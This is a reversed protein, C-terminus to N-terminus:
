DMAVDTQSGVTSFASSIIRALASQQEEPETGCPLQNPRRVSPSSPTNDGGRRAIPLRNGCSVRSGCPAGTHNRNLFSRKFVALEMGLFVKRAERRVALGVVTEMGLIEAEVPTIPAERLCLEHLSWEVWTPIDSQRSLIIREIPDLDKKDLCAIAFARMNPHNFKTALRLTAKLTTASFQTEVELYASLYLVKLMNCVDQVDEELVISVNPGELNSAVCGQSSAELLPRFSHFEQLKHKHLCFTHGSIVLNVNGDEFYFPESKLQHDATPCRPTHLRSRPHQACQPDVCPPIGPCKSRSIVDPYFAYNIM